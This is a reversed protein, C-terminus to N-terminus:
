ENEEPRPDVERPPQRRQHGIEGGQRGGYPRGHDAYEERFFSLTWDGINLRSATRLLATDVPAGNVRVTGSRGLRVLVFEDEADHRVEAEFPDLGALRVDCSADSGITTVDGRLAFVEQRDGPMPHPAPAVVLRPDGGHRPDRTTTVPPRARRHFTPALPVLTAPPALEALPLAGGAPAQARGRLLSWLGAGREVRIHRSRTVRRQLWSTRPVGLTVLPGGPAVVTLSVGHRALGDAIGRVASADSRGAFRFPDNVRLQLHKGSGSLSGRVTRAGPLDLTFELDADVTLDISM